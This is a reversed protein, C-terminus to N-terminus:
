FVIQRVEILIENLRKGDMARCSSIKNPNFANGSDSEETIEMLTIFEKWLKEAERKYRMQEDASRNAIELATIHDALEAEAKEARATMAELETKLRNRTKVAVDYAALIAGLSQLSRAEQILQEDSEESIKQAAKLLKNEERPRDREANLEKIEAILFRREEKFSAKAETLEIELRAMDEASVATDMDHFGRAADTRPTTSMNTGLVINKLLGSM